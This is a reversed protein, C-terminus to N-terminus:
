RLLSRRLGLASIFTGAHHLARGNVHRFALFLPL